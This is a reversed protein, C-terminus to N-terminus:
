FSSFALTQPYLYDASLVSHGLRPNEIIPPMDVIWKM